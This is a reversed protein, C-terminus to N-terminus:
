VPDFAIALRRPGRLTMSDLMPVDPDALRLNKCRSLLTEFAIRTELRALAAGLCFHIGHGFAVHDRERRDLDFLDPDRFRQEDRNASAFLVLLLDGDCLKTGALETERMVRRPLGQVPSDYRLTEEVAAPIASPDAAVRALAEPHALLAKAANGILNTTTENGAILLLTIFSMVQGTTLADGGEARVLVSILDDQPASRREACIRDIYAAMEDASGRVSERSPASATGSLGLVFADSWRKFQEYREEDVGLLQAIVTVPFPVAFEGMLELQGRPLCRDSGAGPSKM